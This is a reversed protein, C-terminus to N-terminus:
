QLAHPSTHWGYKTPKGYSRHGVFLGKAPHKRSKSLKEPKRVLPVLETRLLSKQYTMFRERFINKFNGFRGLAAKRHQKQTLIKHNELLHM